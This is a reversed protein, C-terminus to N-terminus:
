KVLHLNADGDILYMAGDAIVPATFVEDPIEVRHRQKGSQPDYAILAGHNQIMWILGSAVMPGQWQLLDGDERRPLPAIWPMLGDIGRIALLQNDPTQLFLFNGALWPAHLVPVRREWLRRGTETEFATLGQSTGAFSLGAAILPSTTSFTAPDASNPGNGALNDTWLPNGTALDLGAIEGSSYSALVVGDRIAPPTDQLKGSVENMGRHSWVMEGSSQLLAILQNDATLLLVYRGAVRPPSRLPLKLEKVWRKHGDNSSIAAVVGQDNAAFLTQNAWALGGGLLTGEDEGEEEEVLVSSKWYVKSIDSVHHASIYGAGDMAYVMGDAVVPAPILPSNFAVGEGIEASNRLKPKTAFSLNGSVGTANGWAQPWAANAPMEPLIVQEGPIGDSQLQQREAQLTKRKGPLPVEKDGGGLWNESDEGCSCLLLLGLLPLAASKLKIQMM